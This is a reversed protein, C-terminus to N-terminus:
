IEESGSLRRLVLAATVTVATLLVSLVAAGTVDGYDWRNWILTSIVVNDSSQLMLPLTLNKISALFVLLFGNLLVPRLLPLLVHRWVQSPRAGSARAAEELGQQIQTIGGTTLRTALSIYQTAMAVVIIWVTGYIPVPLMLYILMVALAIVVGPIAHPIFALTDAMWTFRSKSRVILWSLSVSLVMAALSAALGIVLTHELSSGFLGSSLTKRYGALTVNRLTAWSIPGLYPQLSAYLLVFLPLIFSVVAYLLSGGFAVWRWRGLRQRRPRFAKGTVTAYDQARRVTRNYILLPAVALALLLIGYTSSAGYDPLGFAPHTVRYVETSFVTVHGPLGLVLPIDVAEIVTVFQYIGAGILVPRLLPLSVKRLITWPGAGSTRGADELTSSMNRLSATILLFTLPVLALGQVFIMAPLSYANLPGHGHLGFVSSLAVNLYGNTPNLLLGWAIASIVGPMGTPAVVLVYILGRAPLDTREVLWAFVLSVVFSFLLCAAAFLLTTGLVQYTQADGLVGTFNTLSWPFPPRITVGATTDEFSALLLMLIPGIVLYVLVLVTIANVVGQVSPRGRRRRRVPAPRAPPAQPPRISLDTM